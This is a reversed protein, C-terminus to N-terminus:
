YEKSHEGSNTGCITPASSGGNTVSFSDTLCQSVYTGTAQTSTLDAPQGNLINVTGAAVTDTAPGTIVFTTLDLRLQLNYFLICHDIPM